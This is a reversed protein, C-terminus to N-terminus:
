VSMGGDWEELGQELGRGVGWRCYLLGFVSVRGVSGRNGCLQYFGFVIWESGVGGLGFM